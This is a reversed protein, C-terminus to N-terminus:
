EGLTGITEIAFLEIDRSVSDMSECIALECLLEEIVCRRGKARWLLLEKGSIVSVEDSAM